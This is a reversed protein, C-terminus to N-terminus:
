TDTIKDQHYGFSIYSFNILFYVVELFIKEGTEAVMAATCSLGYKLAVSSVSRSSANEDILHAPM